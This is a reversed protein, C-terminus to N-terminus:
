KCSPAAALCGWLRGFNRGVASATERGVNREASKRCSGAVVVVVVTVVAVVVAGLGVRQEGAEGRGGGRSCGGTARVVRCATGRRGRGGGGVARPGVRSVNALLEAVVVIGDAELEGLVNFLFEEGANGFSLVALRALGFPNADLIGGWATM